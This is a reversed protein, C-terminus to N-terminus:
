RPTLSRHGNATRRRPAVRLMACCHGSREPELRRGRRQPRNRAAAKNGEERLPPIAPEDGNDGPRPEPLSRQQGLGQHRLLRQPAHVDPEGACRVVLADFMETSTDRSSQAQAGVSIEALDAVRNPRPGRMDDGEHEVVHM